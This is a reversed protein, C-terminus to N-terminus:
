LETKEKIGLLKKRLMAIVEIYLKDKEGFYEKVNTLTQCGSEQGTREICSQIPGALEEIKQKLEDRKRQVSEDLSGLFPSVDGQVENM